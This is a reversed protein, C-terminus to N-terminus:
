GNWPGRGVSPGLGTRLDFHWMPGGGCASLGKKKEELPGQEKLIKRSGLGCTGTGAPESRSKKRGNSLVKQKEKTDNVDRWRRAQWINFRGM